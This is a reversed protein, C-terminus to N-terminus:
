SIPRRVGQILKRGLPSLYSQLDFYPVTVEVRGCIPFGVQGLPFGVALGKTTLAFYRYNHATPLLGSALGTRRDTISGRVCANTATLEKKAAAALASLGRIPKAFLDSIDVRHADAVRVTVSLWWAGDNGAPYLRLSPILASVVVTSATILSRKPSTEYVGPSTRPDVRPVGKAFRREDLVVAQRLENNVPKLNMGPRTVQPYTGSTNIAAIRLRPTRAQTVSLPYVTNRVSAPAGGRANSPHSRGLITQGLALAGALAAFAFRTTAGPMM